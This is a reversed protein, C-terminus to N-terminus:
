VVEGGFAKVRIEMLASPLGLPLIFSMIATGLYIREIM